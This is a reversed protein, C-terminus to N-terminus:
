RQTIAKRAKILSTPLGLSQPVNAINRVEDFFVFGIRATYHGRKVLVPQTAVYKSKPKLVTDGKDTRWFPLKCSDEFQSLRKLQNGFKFCYVTENYDNKKVSM